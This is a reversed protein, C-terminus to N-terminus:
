KMQADRDTIYVLVGGEGREWRGPKSLLQKIVIKGLRVIKELSDCYIILRKDITKCIM